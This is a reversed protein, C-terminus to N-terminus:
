GTAQVVVQQLFTGLVAIVTKDVVNSHHAVELTGDEVDFVALVYGAYEPCSKDIAVGCDDALEQLRAVRTKTNARLHQLCGRLAPLIADAEVNTHYTLAPEKGGRFVFLAFAIGKPLSDGIANGFRDALANIPFSQNVAVPNM